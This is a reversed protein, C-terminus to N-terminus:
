KKYIYNAIKIGVIGYIMGTLIGGLVDTPYHMGNHIRSLAMLIIALLSLIWIQRKRYFYCIVVLSLTLFSLHNSPFSSDTNLKGIPFIDNPYALYPRESFWIEDALFGKWLIENFLGYMAVAIVFAVFFYKGYKKDKWFIMLAIIAVSCILFPRYSILWSIKDLFTGYAFNNIAKAIVFDWM